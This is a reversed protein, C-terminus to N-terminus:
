RYFPLKILRRRNSYMKCIVWTVIAWLLSNLPFLIWDWPGPLFKDLWPNYHNLLLYAPSALFNASSHLVMDMSRTIESHVVGM